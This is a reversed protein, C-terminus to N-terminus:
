YDYRSWDVDEVLDRHSDEQPATFKDAPQVQAATVQEKGTYCHGGIDSRTCAKLEGTTLDQTFYEVHCLTTVKLITYGRNGESTTLHELKVRGQDTVEKVRAFIREDIDRYEEETWNYEQMERNPLAIIDGPKVYNVPTTVLEMLAENLATVASKITDHTNKM